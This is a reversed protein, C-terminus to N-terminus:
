TCSKKNIKPATLAKTKESKGAYQALFRLTFKGKPKSKKTVSAKNKCM